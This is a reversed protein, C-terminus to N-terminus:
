LNGKSLCTGFERLIILTAIRDLRITINTCTQWTLIVEKEWDALTGDRFSVPSINKNGLREPKLPQVLRLGVKPVGVAFEGDKVM